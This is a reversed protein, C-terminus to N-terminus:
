QSARAWLERPGPEKLRDRIYKAFNQIKKMELGEASPRRSAAESLVTCGHSESLTLITRM